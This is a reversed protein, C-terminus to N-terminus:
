PVREVSDPICSTLFSLPRRVGHFPVETRRRGENCSRIRGNWAKLFVRQVGGHSQKCFPLFPTDNGAHVIDGRGNVVGVSRGVDPVGIFFDKRVNERAPVPHLPLFDIEQGPHVLMPLFYLLRRFFQANRRLLMHVVDCGFEQGQPFAQADAIVPPGGGRVRAVLGAHLFDQRVQLVPSLKVFFGVLSEVGHALFLEQRVLLPVRFAAEARFPPFHHFQLFFVPVEAQGVM